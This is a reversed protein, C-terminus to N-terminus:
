PEGSCISEYVEMYRQSIVAPTYNVVDINGQEGLSKALPKNEAILLIANAIALADQPPVLLGNKEHKILDPIGGVESAVIPLSAEMADLLTSGLGEQLSPFLFIDLARLYDGINSKFGVFEINTLGQAKQKLMAEDQGDGILLFHLHPHTTELHRAAEITYQQGKHREVLAGVQGILTKNPYSERIKTATLANTTLNAAMSPIISTTLKSQYVNIIKDIASSLSVVHSAHQYVKQTFWNVKPARDMRRTIVYPIHARLSLLYAFHCAKADHAHVLDYQKKIGFIYAVYPQKIKIINVRTSELLIDALLSDSRIILSQQLKPYTSALGDILLATQREGGRFGTALNIHLIHM